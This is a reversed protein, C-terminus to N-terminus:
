KKNLYLQYLIINTEPTHFLSEITTYQIVVTLRTLMQNSVKKNNFHPCNKDSMHTALIIKWNTDQNKKKLTRSTHKKM